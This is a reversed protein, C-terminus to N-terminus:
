NRISNLVFSWVYSFVKSLKCSSIILRLSPFLFKFSSFWFCLQFKRQRWHPDESGPRRVSREAGWQCWRFKKPSCRGWGRLLWIWLKPVVKSIKLFFINFFVLIPGLPTESNQQTNIDGKKQLFFFGTFDWFELQGWELM